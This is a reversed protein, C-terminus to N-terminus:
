SVNDGTALSKGSYVSGFGGNGLVLGVEYFDELKRQKIPEKATSYLCCIAVSLTWLIYMTDYGMVLMM